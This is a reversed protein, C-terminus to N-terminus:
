RARAHLHLPRLQRPAVLKLFIAPGFDGPGRATKARRNHVHFHGPEREVRPCPFLLLRAPAIQRDFDAPL